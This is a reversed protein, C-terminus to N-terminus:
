QTPRRIGTRAPRRVHLLKQEDEAHREGARQGYRHRPPQHQAKQAVPGDGHVDAYQQRDAHQGRQGTHEADGAAHEDGSMVQVYQEDDHADGAYHADAYTHPQASPEGQVGHPRGLHSLPFALHLGVSPFQHRPHRM